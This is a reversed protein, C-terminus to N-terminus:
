GTIDQLVTICCICCLADISVHLWSELSTISTMVVSPCAICSSVGSCNRGCSIRPPLQMRLVRGSGRRRSARDDRACTNM